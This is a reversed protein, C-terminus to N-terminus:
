VEHEEIDVRFEAVGGLKGRFQLLEADADVRGGRLAEASARVEIDGAFVHQPGRICNGFCDGGTEGGQGAGFGARVGAASTAQSELTPRSSLPNSFSLTRVLSLRPM